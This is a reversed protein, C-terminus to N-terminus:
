RRRRSSASGARTPPRASSARAPLGAWAPRCSRCTSASLTASRRAPHTSPRTVSEASGERRARAPRHVERIWRLEEDTPLRTEPRRPSRRARLRDRGRRRRRDRGPHVSRLRMRHDPTASTSCASTRSSAARDRPLRGSAPGLEAARDYGVGSVVDVERCSCARRITRSGTRRRTTSRTAPRAACASCSRRQAARALRHVRLEPQGFPDIQSGGMIIHRRGSWVVDFMTRYPNWGAVVKEPVDVGVPLINEVLLAEGDTMVLSPSSRRRPWGAASRRCRASRTPSSRATAASASPARSRACRPAPRPVAAVDSVHGDGTSRRRTSPKPERRHVDGPVREVGRREQRTAAYERQFAEDRPYDPVCETFHAGHPTEVVGDTMLRNIRISQPPGLRCSSRPTSSRSSRCSGAHARGHLYLDDFYPISASTSGPAARIAATCTSSRSMSSSRPCRSSSRATPTRRASRDAAGPQPAHVDSGLGVAPRSSRCGGRRPRCASSSCARTSSPRRRGRRGPPRQPLAARARDLRAVRVLLRGPAGQGGPVAPRRRARRLRRRTLDSCRRVAAARARHGDAQAAIGVRRDRRDHRRPGRRRRRRHDRTQRSRASTRSRPLDIQRPTLDYVGGGHGIGDIAQAEVPLDHEDGAATAADPAPDRSRKARPPRAADRDAAAM